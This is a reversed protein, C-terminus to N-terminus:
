STRKDKLLHYIEELIMNKSKGTCDIVVDAYKFYLPQRETFLHRLTNTKLGVIGRQSADDLRATIEDLATNLFVFISSKRLHEMVQPSYVISGGTAIVHRRLNLELIRAEEIKKFGDVGRSDIIQQLSQGERYEIYEDCDLFALNMMQSLARGLTSKGSGPMGILVVNRVGSRNKNSTVIWV